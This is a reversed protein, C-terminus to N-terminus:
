CIYLKYIFQSLNLVFLVREPRILYIIKQCKDKLKCYVVIFVVFGCLLKRVYKIFVHVHLYIM